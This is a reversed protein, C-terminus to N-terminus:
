PLATPFLLFAQAVYMKCMEISRASTITCEEGILEFTGADRQSDAAAEMSTMLKNNEERLANGAAIERDGRIALQPTQAIHSDLDCVTAGPADHAPTESIPDRQPETLMRARDEEM